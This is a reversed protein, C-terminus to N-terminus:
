RKRKRRRSDHAASILALGWCRECYEKGFWRTLQRKIYKKKCLACEVSSDLEREYEENIPASTYLFIKRPTMPCPNQRHLKWKCVRIFEIGEYEKFNRFIEAVYYFDEKEDECAAEEKEKSMFISLPYEWQPRENIIRFGREEIRQCITELNLTSVIEKLEEIKM